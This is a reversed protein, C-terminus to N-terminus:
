SLTRHRARSRLCVVALVRRPRSRVGFKNFFGHQVFLYNMLVYLAHGQTQQELAFIDFDEWQGSLSLTRLVAPSVQVFVCRM